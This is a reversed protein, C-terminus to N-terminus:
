NALPAQRHAVKAVKAVKAVELRLNVRRQAVQVELVLRVQKQSLSKVGSEKPLAKVNHNVKVLAKVMDAKSVKVVLNDKAQAAEAPNVVKDVVQLLVRVVKHIIQKM